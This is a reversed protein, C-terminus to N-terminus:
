KMGSKRRVFGKSAKIPPSGLLEAVADEHGCEQLARLCNKREGAIHYLLLSKQLGKERDSKPVHVPKGTYPDLGVHFMCSALTGPTPTFDQVQEVKMRNRKLFLALEVMDSLTCGPHGSIFYPVIYQKKGIKASEKGFLALFKEFYRRGPKRMAETVRDVLHEPAVKLLGGVHHALVEHM